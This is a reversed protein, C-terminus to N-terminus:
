KSKNPNKEDWIKQVAPDIQPEDKLRKGATLTWREFWSIGNDGSYTEPTSFAEDALAEDMSVFKYGRAKIMAFLEDSSDAVLRSPTLVITEPIDRGFMEKSYAEYHEFMKTMYDLFVARVEKMTNVDNDNRAMDYAFSYMWENNDITYKVSTLGHDKLWAEFKQHEDNKRTYLYPYSFYRLTQDKEDLIQKAIRENKEVNAIYADLPQGQFPLHKYGGIGVELGADRWLRVINARVPYLKEGDSIQSGTLFGIAPVRYQQLRAILIRATADADKPPDNSRDLPPIGVFGIALKRDNGGRKQGNVVSISSFSFLALLLISIVAFAVGASWGSGARSIETKKNLIRTIRKMLNGGNAAMANSPVTM